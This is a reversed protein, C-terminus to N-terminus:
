VDADGEKAMAADIASDLDEGNLVVNDPTMGAFVGGQYVTGLDRARLWQYRATERELEAVRLRLRDVVDASYVLRCHECTEAEEYDALDVRFRNGNGSEHWYFLPADIDSM